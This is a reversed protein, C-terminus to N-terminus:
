EMSTPWVLPSCPPRCSAASPRPLPLPGSIAARDRDSNGPQRPLAGTPTQRSNTAPKPTRMRIRKRPGPGFAEPFLTNVAGYFFMKSVNLIISVMARHGARRELGAEAATEFAGLGVVLAASEALAKIKVRAEHGRNKADDIRGDEVLVAFEDAIQAFDRFRAIRDPFHQCKLVRVHGM